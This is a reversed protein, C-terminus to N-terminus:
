IFLYMKMSRSGDYGKRCSRQDKGDMEVSRSHQGSGRRAESEGTFSHM